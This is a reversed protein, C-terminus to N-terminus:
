RGEVLIFETFTFYTKVAEVKDASTMPDTEEVPESRTDIDKNNM